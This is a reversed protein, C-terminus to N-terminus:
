SNGEKVKEGGSSVQYGEMVANRFETIQLVTAMGEADDLLEGDADTIQGKEWGVFVKDFLNDQYRNLAGLKYAEDEEVNALATIESLMAMREDHPLRRYKLRVPFKDFQENNPVRVIVRWIYTDNLKDIKLM